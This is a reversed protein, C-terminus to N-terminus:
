INFKPHKQTLNVCFRRCIQLIQIFFRIINCLMKLSIIQLVHLVELFKYSIAKYVKFQM